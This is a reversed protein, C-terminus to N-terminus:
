KIRTTTEFRRYNAYMSEVDVTERRPVARQDYREIMTAPVWLDLGADHRYTTTIKAFVTGLTLEIATREIRGTRADVDLDGRAFVAEGSAGRVLTPRERERFELTVLPGADRARVRRREFKFRSRHADSVVLLALTPENFTRTIGGINYRANKEAIVAGLRALPARAMLVRVNEPDTVPDGDVERVDRASMWAHEAPLFAVFFDALTRRELTIGRPTRAVQHATEDAVVYSLRSGLATVWDGAARAVAGASTDIREQAPAATVLTAALAGALAVAARTM